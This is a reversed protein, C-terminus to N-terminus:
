MKKNNLFNCIMMEEKRAIIEGFESWSKVDKIKSPNKKFYPNFWIKETKVEKSIKELKELTYDLLFDLELDQCYKEKSEGSTNVAQKHKIQHFNLLEKAKEYEDDLRSTVIFVNHGFSNFLSIAKIAKPRIDVELALSGSYYM